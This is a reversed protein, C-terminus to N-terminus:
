NLWKVLHTEVVQGATVYNVYLCFSSVMELLVYGVDGDMLQRVM